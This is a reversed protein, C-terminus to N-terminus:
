AQLFPSTLKDLPAEAAPRALEAKLRSPCFIGALISLQKVRRLVTEIGTPISHDGGESPSWSFSGGIRLM